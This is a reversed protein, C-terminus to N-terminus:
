FKEVFFRNVSYRIEFGEKEAYKNIRHMANCREKKTLIDYTALHTIADLADLIVEQTRIEIPNM